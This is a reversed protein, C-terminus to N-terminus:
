NSCTIDCTKKVFFDMLILENHLFRLTCSTSAQVRLDEVRNRTMPLQPKIMEEVEEDEVIVDKLPANRLLQEAEALGLPRVNPHRCKGEASFSFSRQRREAKLM